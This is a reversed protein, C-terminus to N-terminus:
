GPIRAADGVAWEATRLREAELADRQAAARAILGALDTAQLEPYRSSVRELATWLSWKGQVGLSMTELTLYRGLEQDGSSLGSLKVRGAERRDV